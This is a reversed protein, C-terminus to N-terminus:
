RCAARGVDHVSEVGGPAHQLSAELAPRDIVQIVDERGCIRALLAERALVDDPVQDLVVQMVATLCRDDEARVADGRQLRHRCVHTREYPLM